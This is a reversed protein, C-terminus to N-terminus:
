RKSRTTEKAAERADLATKIKHITEPRDITFRMTQSTWSSLDLEHTVFGAISEYRPRDIQAAEAPAEASIMQWLTDFDTTLAKHTM